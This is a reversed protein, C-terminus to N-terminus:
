MYNLYDQFHEWGATDYAAYPNRFHENNLAKQAMISLFDVKNHEQAALNLLEKALCNAIIIPSEIGIGAQYLCLTMERPIDASSWFRQQGEEHVALRTTALQAAYNYAATEADPIDSMGKAHDVFLSKVQNGPSTRCTSVFTTIDYEKCLAALRRFELATTHFNVTPAYLHRISSIGQFQIVAGRNLFFIETGRLREVLRPIIDTWFKASSLASYGKDFVIGDILLRM